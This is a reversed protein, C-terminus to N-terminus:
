ICYQAKATACNEWLPVNKQGELGDRSRRCALSIKLLIRLVSNCFDLINDGSPSSSWLKSSPDRVTRISTMTSPMVCPMIFFLVLPKISNHVVPVIALSGFRFRFVRRRMEIKPSQYIQYTLVLYIGLNRLKVKLFKFFFFYRTWRWVENDLCSCAFILLVNGTRSMSHQHPSTEHTGHRRLDTSVYIHLCTSFRRLLM